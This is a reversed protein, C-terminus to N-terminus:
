QSLHPAPKSEALRTQVYPQAGPYGCENRLATEYEWVAYRHWPFTQGVLHIGGTCTLLGSCTDADAYVVASSTCLMGESANVHLAVFDDFRSQVATFYAQGQAPKNM